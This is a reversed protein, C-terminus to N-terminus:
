AIKKPRFKYNESPNIGRTMCLRRWNTPSILLCHSV